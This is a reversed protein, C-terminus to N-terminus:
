PRSNKHEMCTRMWHLAKILAVAHTGWHNNLGFKWIWAATNIDGAEFVIVGEKFDWYIDNIDDFIMGCVPKDEVADHWPDYVQWYFDRVKIKLPLVTTKEFVYDTESPETDPLHLAREYLQLLLSMLEELRDESIVLEEVFACFRKVINFYHQITLEM